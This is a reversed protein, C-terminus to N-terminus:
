VCPRDLEWVLEPSRLQSSLAPSVLISDSMGQRLVLVVPSKQTVTIPVRTQYVNLANILRAHNLIHLPWLHARWIPLWNMLSLYPPASCLWMVISICLCLRSLRVRFGWLGTRTDIVAVDPLASPRFSSWLHDVGQLKPPLVGIARVHQWGGNPPIRCLLRPALRYQQRSDHMIGALISPM